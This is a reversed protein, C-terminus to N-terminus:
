DRIERMPLEVTKGKHEPLVVSVIPTVLFSVSLSSSRSFRFGQGLSDLGADKVAVRQRGLEEFLPEGEVPVSAVFRHNVPFGPPLLLPCREFGSAGLAGPPM